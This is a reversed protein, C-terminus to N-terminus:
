NFDKLSNFGSPALKIEQLVLRGNNTESQGEKM